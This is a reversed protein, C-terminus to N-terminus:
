DTLCHHGESAAEKGYIAADIKNGFLKLLTLM